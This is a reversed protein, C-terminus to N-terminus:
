PKNPAAPQKEPHMQRNFVSPDFPDSPNPKSAAATTPKPSAAPSEPQSQPEAAFPVESKTTTAAAEPKFSAAAKAESAPIGRGEYLNPNNALTLRVWEELTRYAPAQRNKLPAQALSGHVSVSKTLLTSIRPERLNVQALVAAMMTHETAGVSVIPFEIDAGTLGRPAQAYVYGEHLDIHAGPKYAPLPAGDVRSFTYLKTDRAVDEIATLKAQITHAAATPTAAGAIPASTTATNMQPM